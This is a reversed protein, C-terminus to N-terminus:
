SDRLWDQAKSKLLLCNTEWNENYNSETAWSEYSFGYLCLLAWRFLMLIVLQKNAKQSFDLTTFVSADGIDSVYYSILLYKAFPYIQM